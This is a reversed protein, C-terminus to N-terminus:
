PMQGVRPDSRRKRSAERFEDRVQHEVTRERKLRAARAAASEEARRRADVAARRTVGALHHM